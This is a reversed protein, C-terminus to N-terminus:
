GTVSGYSDKPVITKQVEDSLMFDLFAKTLGSAEGKTYVHGEAALEYTKNDVNAITADVGDLQLGNLQAKNAPVNYYALGIVSIAGSTKSVATVVAGNSDETLLQGVTDNIVTGGLVVQQFVYRTGSSAPRVILVIPLDPGGVASWNTVKGSWIQRQQDTTLNTIGTVDKNTAVVWAQRCVVHDVLTASDGAPLKAAAIIDSSGADVAGQSVQTLGIGSGGGNIMIAGDPCHKMYAEAADSLLPQLATSGALAMSGKVCEASGPDGSGSTLASGGPATSSGGTSGCAGVVAGLMLFLVLSRMRRM